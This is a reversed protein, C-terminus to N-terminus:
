QKTLVLAGLLLPLYIISALFLSRATAPAPKGHFRMAMAVFACSLALAIPVYAVSTLGLYGITPAAILLLISFLVSQSACRAGSEDENSIMRFGARAYDARYIWALSFFHPMQWLFLTAFLAWGPLSLDNRAAAWGILPPLAGPIAGVITNATTVRKLPTYAFLYIVITLGALLASILNVVLLLYIVGAFSLIAGVILGERPTMRGAPIPRGQTRLMIADHQHEWWQNLAAAGSAALATGFVAHFMAVFDNAGRNGTYFGVATTILVLFTLRAKVLQAFDAMTWGRQLEVAPPNIVVTKV